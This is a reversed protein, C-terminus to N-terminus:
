ISRLLGSSCVCIKELLDLKLVFIDKDLTKLV